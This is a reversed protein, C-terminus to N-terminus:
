SVLIIMCEGNLPLKVPMKGDLTYINVDQKALVILSFDFYILHNRVIVLNITFQRLDTFDNFHPKQRINGHIHRHHDVGERKAWVTPIGM